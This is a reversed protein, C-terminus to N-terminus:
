LGLPTTSSPPSLEFFRDIQEGTDGHRSNISELHAYARRLCASLNTGCNIPQSIGVGSLRYYSLKGEHYVSVTAEHENDSVVLSEASSRLVKYHRANYEWIVTSM